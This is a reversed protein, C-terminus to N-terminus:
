KLEIKKILLHKKVDKNFNVVFDYDRKWKKLAEKCDDKKGNFQILWQLHSLIKEKSLLQNYIISALLDHRQQETFANHEGVSYGYISLESFKRLNVVSEDEFKLKILPYKLDAFYKKVTKYDSYLKSCKQCQFANFTVIKGESNITTITVSESLHKEFKTCKISALNLYVYLPKKDYEYVSSQIMVGSTNVRIKASVSSKPVIYKTLCESEKDFLYINKSLIFLDNYLSKIFSVDISNKYFKNNYRPNKKLISRVYKLDIKPPNLKQALFERLFFKYAITGLDDSRKEKLIELDRDPIKSNNWWEEFEDFEEDNLLEMHVLYNLDYDLFKFYKRFNINPFLLYSPDKPNKDYCIRIEDSLQEVIEGFGLTKHYIREGILDIGLSDGM